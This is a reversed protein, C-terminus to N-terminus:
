SRHVLWVSPMRRKAQRSPAHASRAQMCPLWVWAPQTRPEGGLARSLPELKFVWRETPALLSGSARLQQLPSFLPSSVSLGHKSTAGRRVRTASSLCGSSAASMQVVSCPSLSSCLCSSSPPPSALALRVNMGSVAPPTQCRLKSMVVAHQLGANAVTAPARIVCGRRNDEAGTVQLICDADNEAAKLMYALTCMDFAEEPHLRGIDGVSYSALFDTGYNRLHSLCSTM